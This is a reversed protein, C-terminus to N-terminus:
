EAARVEHLRSRLLEPLATEIEPTILGVADLDQIHVRDKLRYSTLKMRVLDAVPALLIGETTVAPPSDPVAEVYDPRVKENLFILHVASRAKPRDADVLMDVAAVHKYLWGLEAAAAIVAPLDQRRIAADVDSTLRARLPDRESVHIFVALGGVIRYPIGQASLTRHLQQVRHFLQELHTDYATATLMPYMVMKDRKLPSGESVLSLSQTYDPIPYRGHSLDWDENKRENQQSRHHSEATSAPHQVRQDLGDMLEAAARGGPHM